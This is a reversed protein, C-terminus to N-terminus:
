REAWGLVSIPYQWSDFLLREPRVEWRSFRFRRFLFEWATPTLRWYDGSEYDHLPFMLPASFWLRGDEILCERLQQMMAYLDDVHELVERALILKFRNLEYPIERRERWSEGIDIVGPLEPAVDAQVVTHGHGRFLDALDQSHGPGLELVRTLGHSRVASANESDMWALAQQFHEDIPARHTARDEIWTKWDRM